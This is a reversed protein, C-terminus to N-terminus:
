EKGPPHSAFLPEESRVVVFWANDVGQEGGMAMMREDSQHRSRRVLTGERYLRLEIQNRAMPEIELSRSANLQVTRVRDRETTVEQRDLEWYYKWRFVPSLRQSLRPGVRKARASPPREENTGEVFQVYYKKPEASASVPLILIWVFLLLSLRM